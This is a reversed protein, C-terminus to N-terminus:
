PRGPCQAPCPQPLQAAKPLLGDEGSAKPSQVHCATMDAAGLCQIPVGMISVAVPTSLAAQGSPGQLPPTPMAMALTHLAPHASALHSAQAPIDVDPLPCPELLLAHNPPPPQAWSLFQPERLPQLCERSKTTPASAPGMGAGWGGLVCIVFPHTHEPSPLPQAPAM